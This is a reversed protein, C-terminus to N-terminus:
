FFVQCREEVLEILLSLSSDGEAATDEGQKHIAKTLLVPVLQRAKDVVQPRNLDNVGVVAVFDVSVLEEEDQSVDESDVSKLDGNVKKLFVLGWFGCLLFFLVRELLLVDLLLISQHAGYPLSGCLFFGLEVLLLLVHFLTLSCGVFVFPSIVLSPIAESSPGGRWQRRHSPLTLFLIYM